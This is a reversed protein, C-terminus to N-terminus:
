SQKETPIGHKRSYAFLYQQMVGVYKGYTNQLYGVGYFEELKHVWTDIPYSELNHLGFLSICEAVKAGVGYINNLIANATEVPIDTMADFNVVPSSCIMAANILRTDRYGVGLARLGECSAKSLEEPKPFAYYEKGTIADVCHEGYKESMQELIKQARPININQAVLFTILMEWPQQNLIRIGSNEAYANCLFKDTKDICSAIENYDTDLDLYHKWLSNFEEETCTLSLATKDDIKSQRIELYKGFAVISYSNEDELQHWRFCQGSEAIQKVDFNDVVVSYM